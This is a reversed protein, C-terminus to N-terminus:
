PGHIRFFLYGIAFTIVWGLLGFWFVLRHRMKDCFYMSVGLIVVVMIVAGFGNYANMNMFRSLTVLSIAILSAPVGLFAYMDMRPALGGRGAYKGLKREQSFKTRGDTKFVPRFFFFSVLAGLIWGVVFVYSIIQFFENEIRLLAAAIAGIVWVVGMGTFGGLVTFAGIAFGRKVKEGIDNAGFGDASPGPASDAVLVYRADRMLGYGANVRRLCLTRGSLHKLADPEISVRHGFLESQLYEEKPKEGSDFYGIIFSEGNYTWRPPNLGDNQSTVRMLVSQIGAPFQNMRDRLFDAADPTISFPVSGTM